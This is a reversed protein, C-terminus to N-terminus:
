CNSKFRSNTLYPFSIKSYRSSSVTGSSTAGKSREAAEIKFKTMSASCSARFSGLKVFSNFVAGEVASQEKQATTAVSASALDEDSGPISVGFGALLTLGDARILRFASMGALWAADHLEMVDDM